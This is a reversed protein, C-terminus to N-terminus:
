QHVKKIDGGHNRFDVIEDALTDYDVRENLNKIEERIIEKLKNKTLKM